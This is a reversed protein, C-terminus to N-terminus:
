SNEVLKYIDQYNRGYGDYDLGYGVVFKNEISFGEYDITVDYKRAEPKSLFAAIKVSAPSQKLLEPLFYNLTTGTDIIDEVVIIHRDKVDEMLGIPSVVKGTSSTGSYSKLKVFSVEAPISIAKFLDATFMFAGNLVGLFLPAKSDYDNDIAAAIEVVKNWIEEKRIYPEFEKDKIKLIEPM